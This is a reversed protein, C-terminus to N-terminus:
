WVISRLFRNFRTRTLSLGLIEILSNEPADMNFIIYYYVFIRYTVFSHVLIQFEIEMKVLIDLLVSLQWRVTTWFMLIIAVEILNHLILFNRDWEFFFFLLRKYDVIKTLVIELIIRCWGYWCCSLTNAEWLCSWLYSWLIAL